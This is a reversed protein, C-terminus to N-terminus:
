GRKRRLWREPNMIKTNKWIEFHLMSGSLSGSNGVKGIEEGQKVKQGPVVLIEALHAYVTYYGGYHDIILINGRGRQWTIATVVGDAASRVPTGFPAKIDVGINEQVTHLKKNRIKGFHHLIRGNTPWPLKGRLEAFHSVETRRSLSSTRAAEKSRILRKIAAEAEKYEKIKQAYIRKDNRIRRLLKQRKSKQISLNREERKKEAILERQKELTKRLQNTQQAIRDKQVQLARLRRKDADLIMKRYKLWVLAQNLSHVSLLVGWTLLPGEKYYRVVRRTYDKKLVQYQSTLALLNKNQDLIKQRLLAQEISLKQLLARTLDIEREIRALKELTTAEKKQSSALKQRYRRIQSRISQLKTQQNKTRANQAGAPGSSGSFLLLLFLIGFIPRPFRSFSLRM